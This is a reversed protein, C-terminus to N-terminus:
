VYGLDEMQERRDYDEEGPETIEPEYTGADVATIEDWPVWRMQPHLFGPQHGWLSWEGMANGHDATVVVDGDFNECIKEVHEWVFRLNEWYADKLEDLDYNGGYFMELWPGEYQMPDDSGHNEKYMRGFSKDAGIFPYHPQMSHAMIRDHDGHRGEHIVRDTIPDPPVTGRDDDWAWKWVEDLLGWDTPNDASYQNGTIYATKRTEPHDFTNAMWEPSSSGVSWIKDVDQNAVDRYMDVRCADLILLLDWDRDFVNTGQETIWPMKSLASAVFDLAISPLVESGNKQYRYKSKDIFDQLTM